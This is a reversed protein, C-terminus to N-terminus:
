GLEGYEGGITPKGPIFSRERGTTYRGIEGDRIHITLSVIGHVLGTIENELAKIAVSPINGNYGQNAISPTNGGRIPGGGHLPKEKPM